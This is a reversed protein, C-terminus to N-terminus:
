YEMLHLYWTKRVWEGTLPCISQKWKATTFLALYVHSHLYRKSSVSKMNKQVFEWFRSQQIM